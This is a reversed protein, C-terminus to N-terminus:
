SSACSRPRTSKVCGLRQGARNPAAQASRRGSATSPQRSRATGMVVAHGSCSTLSYMDTCHLAILPTPGFLNRGTRDPNPRTRVPGTPTFRLSMASFTGFLAAAAFCTWCPLAPLPPGEGEAHDDDGCRLPQQPWARSRTEAPAQGHALCEVDRCSLMGRCSM